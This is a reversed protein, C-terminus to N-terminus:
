EDQEQEVRTYFTVSHSYPRGEQLAYHIEFHTWVGADRLAEYEEFPIEVKKYKVSM